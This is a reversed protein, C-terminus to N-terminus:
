LMKKTSLEPSFSLTTNSDDDDAGDCEDDSPVDDTWDDALLSRKRKTDGDDGVEEVMWVKYENIGVRVIVKRNITPPLPTRVLMRARDLRRRDETDDDPEIVDDICSVVKTM